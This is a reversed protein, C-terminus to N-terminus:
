VNDSKKYFKGNNIVYGESILRNHIGRLVEGYEKLSVVTEESFFQQALVRFASDISITDFCFVSLVKEEPEIKSVLIHKKNIKKM